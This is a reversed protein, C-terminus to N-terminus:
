NFATVHSDQIQDHGSGSIENLLTPDSSAAASALLQTVKQLEQKLTALEESPAEDEEKNTNVSGTVGPNSNFL